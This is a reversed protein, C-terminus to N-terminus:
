RTKDFKWNFCWLHSCRQSFFTTRYILKPTPFHYDPIPDVGFRTLHTKTVYFGIHSASPKVAINKVVYFCFSSTKLNEFLAGSTRVKTSLPGDPIHTQTPFPMASNDTALFLVQNLSKIRLFKLDPLSVLWSWASWKSLVKNAWHPEIM